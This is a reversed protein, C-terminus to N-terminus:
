VESAGAPKRWWHDPTMLRILWGCVASAAILLGGTVFTVFFGGFESTVNMTDRADALGLIQGVLMGMTGAIVHLIPVLQSMGVVVAGAILPAAFQRRIACLWCGWALFLLSAAAMGIRGHAQTTSLGFFLPVVMNLAFVAGWALYHPRGARQQEPGDPFPNGLAATPAEYPNRRDL